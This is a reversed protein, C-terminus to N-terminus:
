DLFRTYCWKIHCCWSYMIFCKHVLTFHRPSLEGTEWATYKLYIVLVILLALWRPSQTVVSGAVLHRWADTLLRHSTWFDLGQFNLRHQWQVNYLMFIFYYLLLHTFYFHVSELMSNPFQQIHHFMAPAWNSYSQEIHTQICLRPFTATAATYGRERWPISILPTHLILHAHPSSRSIWTNFAAHCQFKFPSLM